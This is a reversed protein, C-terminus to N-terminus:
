DDDDVSADDAEHPAHPADPKGTAARALRATSRIAGTEDVRVWDVTGIGYPEFTSYAIVLRELDTEVFRGSDAVGVTFLAVQRVMANTFITAHAWHLADDIKHNPLPFVNFDLVRGFRDLLAAAHARRYRAALLRAAGVTDAFTRLSDFPDPDDTM